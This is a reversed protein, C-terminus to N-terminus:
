NLEEPLTKQPKLMIGVGIILFGILVVIPALTLRRSSFIEENFQNPDDSAGGVMLLFGIITLLFGLLIFLFNKKGLVFSSSQVSKEM